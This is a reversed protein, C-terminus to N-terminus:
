IANHANSDNGAAPPPPTQQGHIFTPRGLCVQTDQFHLEWLEQYKEAGSLDVVTMRCREYNITDVSFGVTPVIEEQSEPLIANIISSKGSNAPGLVVLHAKFQM